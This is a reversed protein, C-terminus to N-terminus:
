HFRTALGDLGADSWAFYATPTVHTQGSALRIEGPRLLEGAGLLVSHDTMRDTRHVVDASWGLHVAWSEGSRNRPVGRSAISVWPADHGGRGRRSTRCVAGPPMPTTVPIKERAWRGTFSTLHDATRPAPLTAEFQEVTVVGDATNTLAHDVTVLGGPG